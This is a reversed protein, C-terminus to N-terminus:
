ANNKEKELLELVRPDIDLQRGTNVLVTLGKARTPLALKEDLKKDIKQQETEGTIQENQSKAM